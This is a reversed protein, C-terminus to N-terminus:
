FSGGSLQVPGGSTGTNNQTRLLEDQLQMIRDQLQREQLLWQGLSLALQEAETISLRMEKSNYDKATKVAKLFKDVPTLNIM